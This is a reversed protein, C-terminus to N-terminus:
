IGKPYRIRQGSHIRSRHLGNIKMLTRVSFGLHKSIGVLHDGRRVVYISYSSQKATKSTEESAIVRDPKVRKLHELAARNDEFKSLQSKPVYIDVVHAKTYPTYGHLLDQNWHKLTEYPVNTTSAISKLPLGAPVSVTDFDEWAEDATVKLGYKDLNKGVIMAALFKPVYNLTERPLMGTEALAWFDRTKGNMISRVIRHEGANYAALALYWSGFVNNLDKLYSAAAETSKIWNRREDVASNVALGYNKGTGKMFQWLGVARARSKANYVFGSEIMALFFLESPVDNEKLIKEIHPRLPLGRRLFEITREREQVTFFHIWAEVRQNIEPPIRLPPHDGKEESSTESMTPNNEAIVKDIIAADQTPTAVLASGEVTDHGGPHRNMGACAVLQMSILVFFFRM